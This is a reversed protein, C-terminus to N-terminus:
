DRKWLWGDFEAESLGQPIATVPQAWTKSSGFLGHSSPKEMLAKLRMTEASDEGELIVRAAHAKEAFVKARAQDGHAIVIQLADNYVRAIRSGSIGEVNLMQFITYADRLCALPKSMTRRGDGLLSDLQLMEQVRSDRKESEEEPLSCLECSCHFGFAEELALQRDGFNMAGDVYAITIEEGVEIDKFAHITLKGLNHNWRNQSNPNCSHNIRAARPFIGGEEGASGFPMANTRTIGILPSCSRKHINALEFFSRQQDRTLGKLGQMIVAEVAKIDTTVKPIILLPAEALIRTGRPIKSTAVCGMGRGRLRKVVYLQEDDNNNGPKVIANTDNAKEVHNQDKGCSKSKEETKRQRKEFVLGEDFGM